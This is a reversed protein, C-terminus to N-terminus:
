ANTTSSQREKQEKRHLNDLAPTSPTDHSLARGLKLRFLHKDDYRASHSRSYTQHRVLAGLNSNGLISGDLSRSVFLLGCNGFSNIM